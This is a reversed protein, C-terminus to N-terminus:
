LFKSIIKMVVPRLNVFVWYASICSVWAMLIDKFLYFPVLWNLWGLYTSLSDHMGEIYSVCDFTPLLSLLKTLAGVILEIM